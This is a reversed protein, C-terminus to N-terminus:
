TFKVPANVWSIPQDCVITGSGGHKCFINVCQFHRGNLSFQQGCLCYQPIDPVMPFNVNFTYHNDLHIIAGVGACKELLWWANHAHISNVKRGQFTVPTIHLKPILRGSTKLSWEIRQVTPM